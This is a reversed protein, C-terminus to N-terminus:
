LSGYYEAMSAKSIVVSGREGPNLDGRADLWPAESHTLDSLVQASKNGYFDLVSNITEQHVASIRSPDGGIVDATVIFQGAHIAYLAPAVPGNAWAQFDDEFIPTEDWVLAWAQAYYALKQLKMATMPGVKNLIFSAVDRIHTM